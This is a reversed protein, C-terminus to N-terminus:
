SLRNKENLVDGCDSCVFVRKSLFLIKVNVIWGNKHSCEEPTTGSYVVYSGLYNVNKMDKTINRKM